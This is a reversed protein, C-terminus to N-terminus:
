SIKKSDMLLSQLEAYLDEAERVLKSEPFRDVFTRYANMAEEIRELKKDEISNVSLLYASKFELFYTEERFRSSPYSQNFNAFSRQAARYTDM